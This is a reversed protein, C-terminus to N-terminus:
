SNFMELQESDPIEVVSIFGGNPHSSNFIDAQRQMAVKAAIKLAERKITSLSSNGIGHLTGGCV